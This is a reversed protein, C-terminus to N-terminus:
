RRAAADAARARARRARRPPDVARVAAAVGPRGRQNGRAQAAGMADLLDRGVGPEDYTDFVPGIVVPKGSAAALQEHWALDALRQERDLLLARPAMTFLGPGPDPASRRARRRAARRRRVGPRPARHQGPGINGVVQDTSFGLAGLRLGDAVLERMEAIEGATAVRTCAAEPGM